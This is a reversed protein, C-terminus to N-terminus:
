FNSFLISSTEYAQKLFNKLFIDESNSMVHKLAVNNYLSSPQNLWGMTM